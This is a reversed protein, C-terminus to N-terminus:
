FDISPFILKKRKDDKASEESILGTTVLMPIIEIRLKYNDILRGYVEYHKQAIEKLTIGAVSSESNLEKLNNKCKFAPLIIEIYFNLLYPPLDFEQGISVKDWLAFAENIDDYNAYIVNGNRERFWLNLLASAKILSIVRTIDRNYRPKLFEKGKLFKEMLLEVDKIVVERIKENKIALIRDKLLNRKYDKELKANYAISDSKREATEKISKKLKDQTLEPSLLLFRTSEQENINLGATCFIVSPFGILIVNKTKLGYKQDKDTISNFLLKDDHSLLPRFHKLLEAHPQDLFIIVKRSLDVIYGNSDRDFDGTDHFFAMPSCHAKKIIDEEPFLRSIELAFYSKGTSSPANFSINFQDNETYAALMCLFTAIKNCRDEKITLELIDSIGDFNLPEFKSIDIKKPYSEAYKELLDSANGNLKIFYDTIDGGEGVGEPLNIRYLKSKVVPRLIELVRVSGKKGAMDNDFCVYISEINSFEKAWYEKFAMVGHTSTIAPIGKSILLLRDLEGECIVIYKSNNKLTEWDYIQAVAGRPYTMKSNGEEPDQRLKLFIYDGDKDKMPITIWNKGYFNGYGIKSGNIINNDIGRKNLYNRITDPLSSHCKEVSSSGFKYKPRDKKPFNDNIKVKDKGDGYYKALTFINGTQGCKKCEYQGTTADFYLHSENAKSDKDCGNFICKTILEGNRECFSIGKSILYEKIKITKVEYM